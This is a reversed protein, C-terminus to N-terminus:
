WKFKKTLNRKIDRNLNKAKNVVLVDNLHDLEHQYAQAALGSLEEEVIVYNLEKDITIYRVKISECREVLFNYGPFSLCGEPLCVNSGTFSVIEPNICVREKEKIIFSFLRIFTGVQPAAVGVAKREERAGRLLLIVKMIDEKATSNIDVVESVKGQLESGRLIKINM